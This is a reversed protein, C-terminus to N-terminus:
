TGAGVLGPLEALSRVERCPAPEAHDWAHGSRNVWIAPIGAARAGAMDHEPSDGVFVAEEPAVGARRLAERFIAPDPKAAGFEESILFFDVLQPMRLLELKARQVEAPGNTIIGISRPRAAGALPGQRLAQLTTVADPFLELGHFRHRRYWGAAVAAAESDGAGHRAFLEGFHDAGHPHMQISDAVMRDLDLNRRASADEGTGLTFARRLRAERAGAYDCLTDDLDLLIARPPPDLPELPVPAM